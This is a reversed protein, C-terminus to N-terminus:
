VERGAAHLQDSGEYEFERIAVALSCQFNFPTKAEGHYGGMEVMLSLQQGRQLGKVETEFVTRWDIKNLQGPHYGWKSTAFLQAIM